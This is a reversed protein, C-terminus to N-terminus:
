SYKCRIRDKEAASAVNVNQIFLFAPLIDWRDCNEPFIQINQALRGEVTQKDIAFKFEILRAKITERTERDCIM